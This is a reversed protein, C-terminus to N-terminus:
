QTKPRSTQPHSPKNEEPQVRKLYYRDIARDWDDTVPSALPGEFDDIVGFTLTGDEIKFLAVVEDPPVLRRRVTAPPAGSM